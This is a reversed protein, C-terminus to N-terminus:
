KSLSNTFFSFTPSPQTSDVDPAAESEYASSCSAGCNANSTCGIRAVPFNKTDNVGELAEGVLSYYFGDQVKLLEDIAFLLPLAPPNVHDIKERECSLRWARKLSANGMHQAPNNLPLSPVHDLFRGLGKKCFKRYQATFLIFEHWAEDVVKSPMAVANNGAVNCIHFYSRLGDLIMDIDSDNFHPYKELLKNRITDPFKYRNIYPLRRKHRRLFLALLLNLLIAVTLILDFNVRTGVETLM